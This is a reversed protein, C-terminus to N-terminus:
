RVPQLIQFAIRGKVKDPRRGEQLTLTFSRSGTAHMSTYGREALKGLLSLAIVSKGSGPGGTIVIVTKRDGQQAAEVYHLVSEVAVVQEDLLVFQERGAIEEAAVKLLQRSPAVASRLIQDAYPAGSVGPEFDRDCFISSTM